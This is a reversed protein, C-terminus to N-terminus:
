TNSQYSAPSSYFFFFHLVVASGVSFQQPETPPFYFISQLIKKSQVAGWGRAAETLPSSSETGATSVSYQTIQSKKSPVELKSLLEM